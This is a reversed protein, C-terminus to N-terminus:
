SGQLFPKTDLLVLQEKLLESNLNWFSFPPKYGGIILDLAKQKAPM